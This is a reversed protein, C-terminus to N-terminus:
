GEGGDDPREGRITDRRRWGIGVLAALPVGVALALLLGSPAGDDGEPPPPLPLAVTRTSTVGDERSVVRIEVAEVQGTARATLDFPAFGSGDLEGVFYRRAPYTPTVNESRVVEVVVGRAAGRGVNVLNGSVAISGNESRRVNVDTLELVAVEPRYDLTYTTTTAGRTGARYRVRFVVPGHTRIRGLDVTVTGSEGPGLVDDLRQRPLTRNGAVPTVVVDAARVTGFNTVEVTYTTSTREDESEGSSTAGGGILGSLGSPVAGEDNEPPPQRRVEVGLDPDHPAVSVAVERRVEREVGSADTYAVVVALSQDGAARPVTSLNVVEETGAALAPVFAASRNASGLPEVLRVAVDRIPATTPNGVTVAVRTPSDVAAPGTQVSVQPPAQEVTVPVPRTVTVRDGDADRGVVRLTLTRAGPEDFATALPVSVTDGPSLSGVDDAAVRVGDDRLEVTEVEVPSPSGASNRITADVVVQSGVTAVEPTVTVDTVALRADPVAAAGGALASVALLAAFLAALRDASM